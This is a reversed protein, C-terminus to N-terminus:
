AANDGEHNSAMNGSIDTLTLLSTLNTKLYNEASM